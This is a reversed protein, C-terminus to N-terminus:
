RSGCSLSLNELKRVPGGQAFTILSHALAKAQLGAREAVGSRGGSNIKTAPPYKLWSFM